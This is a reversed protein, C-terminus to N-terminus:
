QVHALILLLLFWQDTFDYFYLRFVIFEKHCTYVSYPSSPQNCFPYVPFIRRFKLYLRQGPAGTNFDVFTDLLGVVKEKV